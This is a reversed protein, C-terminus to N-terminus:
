RRCGASARSCNMAALGACGPRSDPMPAGQGSTETAKAQDIGTLTRSPDDGARGRLEEPLLRWAVTAGLRDLRVEPALM